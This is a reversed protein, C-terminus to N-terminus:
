FCSTPFRYITRTCTRGHKGTSCTKASVVRVCLNQSGPGSQSPEIINPGSLGPGVFQGWPAEEAAEELIDRLCPHQDDTTSNADNVTGEPMAHDVLRKDIQSKNRDLYLGIEYSGSDSTIDGTFDLIFVLKTDGSGIVAGIPREESDWNVNMGVNASGAGGGVNIGLGTVDVDEGFDFPNRSGIRRAVENKVFAIVNDQSTQNGFYEKAVACSVSDSSSTLGILGSPTKMDLSSTSQSSNFTSPNIYLLGGNTAINVDDYFDFFLNANNRETANMAINTTVVEMFYQQPFHAKVNFKWSLKDQPNLIIVTENTVDCVMPTDPTAPGGNLDTFECNPLTRKTSALAKANSFNCDHCIYADTFAQNAFINGSYIMIGILCLQVLKKM